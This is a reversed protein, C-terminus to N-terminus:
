LTEDFFDPRPLREATPELLLKFTTVAIPRGVPNRTTVHVFMEPLDLLQRPWTDGMRTVLHLIADVNYGPVSPFCFKVSEPLECSQWNEPPLASPLQEATTQYWITQTM